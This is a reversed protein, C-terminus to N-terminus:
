RRLLKNILEEIWSLTEKGAKLEAIQEELDTIRENLKHSKREYEQQQKINAEKLITLQESISAVEAVHRAEQDGIDKRAKVLQDEVVILREIGAIIDSADSTAPLDIKGAIVSKFAEFEDKRTKAEAKYKEVDARAEDREKWFKERDVLCAQLADPNTPMPEPKSIVPKYDKYVSVFELPDIMYELLQDKTKPWWRWNDGPPKKRFVDWHLHCATSNGTNGMRAVPINEFLVEGNKVLIENLHAYRIWRPGRPTEVQYVLMRGYGSSSYSQFHAKASDVILPFLPTNCDTNGGGLGNTDLGEHPGYSVPVGFKQDIKFPEHPNRRM